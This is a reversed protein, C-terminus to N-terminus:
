WFIEMTECASNIELEQTGPRVETKKSHLTHIIVLCKIGYDSYNFSKEHKDVLFSKIDPYFIKKLANASKAIDKPNFNLAM